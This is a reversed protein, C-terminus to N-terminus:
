NRLIDVEGDTIDQRKRISITLEGDNDVAPAEVMDFLSIPFRIRCFKTAYCSWSADKADEGPVALTVRVFSMLPFAVGAPPDAVGRHSSCIEKTGIFELRYECGGEGSRREGFSM